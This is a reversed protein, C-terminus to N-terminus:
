EALVQELPAELPKVHDYGGFEFDLDFELDHLHTIRVDHGADRAADAYAEALTRNLSSVAPHGNLIFIRKATM